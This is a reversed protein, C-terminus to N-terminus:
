KADSSALIMYTGYRLDCGTMKQYGESMIKM